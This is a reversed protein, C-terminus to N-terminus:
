FGEELGDQIDSDKPLLQRPFTKQLFRHGSCLTTLHRLMQKDDLAVSADYRFQEDSMVRAITTLTDLHEAAYNKPGMLIFFFRTPIGDPAGLNVGHTLRVFIVLPADLEDLYAHPVAVAHGIATSIVRERDMIANFVLDQKQDDLLGRDVMNQLSRDVITEIDRADLNSLFAGDSLAKRLVQM